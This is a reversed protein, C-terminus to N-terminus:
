LNLYKVWEKPVNGRVVLVQGRPTKPEYLMKMGAEHPTRNAKRNNCPGCACATNGWSNAGGRSKPILHDITFDYKNLIRGNKKQGIMAGCYICQWADRELVARRSWTVGLRPVNVYYTLRVVSPVEFERNVSRLRSAIGEVAQVKDALLLNVARRITIMQLPEYSANLLLVSM